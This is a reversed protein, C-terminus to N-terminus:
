DYITTGPTERTKEFLLNRNEIGQVLFLLANFDVYQLQPRRVV